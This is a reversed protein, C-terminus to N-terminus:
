DSIVCDLFGIAEGGSGLGWGFLQNCLRMTKKELCNNSLLQGLCSKTRMSFSSKLLVLISVSTFSSYHNNYNNM